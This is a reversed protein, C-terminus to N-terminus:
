CLSLRSLQNSYWIQMQFTSNRCHINVFLNILQSFFPFWKKDNKTAEVKKQLRVWSLSLYPCRYFIRLRFRIPNLDLCIYLLQVLHLFLRSWPLYMKALDSIFLSLLIYIRVMQGNKYRQSADNPAVHLSFNM